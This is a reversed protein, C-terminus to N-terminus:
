FYLVIDDIVGNFWIVEGEIRYKILYVLVRSLRKVMLEFLM